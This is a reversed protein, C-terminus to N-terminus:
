VEIVDLFHASSAHLVGKGHRHAESGVNLPLRWPLVPSYSSSDEALISNQSQVGMEPRTHTPRFDVLAADDVCALWTNHFSHRRFYGVHGDTEAPESDVPVQGTTEESRPRINIQRSDHGPHPNSEVHSVAMAHLWNPHSLRQQPLYANDLGSLKGSCGAPLLRPQHLKRDCRM